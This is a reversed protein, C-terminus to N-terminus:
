TLDVIRQNVQGLMADLKSISDVGENVMASRLSLLESQRECMTELETLVHAGDSEEIETSEELEEEAQQEPRIKKPRGM